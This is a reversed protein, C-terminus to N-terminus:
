GSGGENGAVEDTKRKSNRKAWRLGCANCLTKAGLPGKRWEPSDTRGCTVCVYQEQTPHAKKPKKRTRGAETSELTEEVVSARRGSNPVTGANNSPGAGYSASSYSGDFAGGALRNAPTAFYSSNATPPQPMAHISHPQYAADADGSNTNNRALNLGGLSSSPYVPSALPAPQGRPSEAPAIQGIPYAPSSLAPSSPGGSTRLNLLQQRLRENEIKLELFSDLVTTNRTPYPRAMIIFCSAEPDANPNPKTDLGLSSSSPSPGSDSVASGSGSTKSYIAHGRLEFLPFSGASNAPPNSPGAAPSRPSNPNSNRPSSFKSRLRVYASLDSRSSIAQKLHQNFPGADDDHVFDRFARETIEDERWGLLEVVAPSVWLINDANNLVVLISGSLESILIDAWKKRKTFEFVGPPKSAM